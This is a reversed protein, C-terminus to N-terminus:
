SQLDFMFIIYNVYLVSLSYFIMRYFKLFSEEKWYHKHLCTGLIIIKIKFFNSSFVYFQLDKM